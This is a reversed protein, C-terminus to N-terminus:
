AGFRAKVKEPDSCMDRIMANREMCAEVGAVTGIEGQARAKQLLDSMRPIRAHELDTFIADLTQTSPPEASPNREELLELLLDFDEYAQNAGQGLHPSIPHAADGALLVRGQHWSRPEPRDYIGYKIIKLSNKVLEGAGYPWDAFPSNKKFDEAAAEDIARWDEKAEAERQSIAWATIDDDLPLVIMYVGDGYIDAPARKGKWFEPTPSMGGCHTVGTYDAPMDGFLCARTRSHLGDCGVVFSFTEKVGNAFAVTVGDDHQELTEMNHGFVVPVGFEQAFDIIRAQMLPRRLTVLPHGTTERMHRPYESTGLLGADEPLASYFYFADISHGGIADLLGPIKALVAIGNAQLAIGLGQDSPEELREYVVCEYGKQKLLMALVPGAIGAGIIGVRASPM